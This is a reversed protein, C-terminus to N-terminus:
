ETTAAVPFRLSSMGHLDVWTADPAHVVRMLVGSCGPCRAVLGPSPGYVTLEAVLSSEGCGRCRAVATTMDGAFVDLMPGALANGDYVGMGGLANM